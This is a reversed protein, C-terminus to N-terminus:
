RVRSNAKMLTMMLDLQELRNLEAKEAASVVGARNKDLLASIKAQVPPSPRFAVIAQPSPASSLFRMVEDHLGTDVPAIHRLRAEIIEDLWNQFPALQTAAAEHLQIMMEIM